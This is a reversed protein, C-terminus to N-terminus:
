FVSKEHLITMIYKELCEQGNRLEEPSYSKWITTNFSSMMKSLLSYYVVSTEEDNMDKHYNKLFTECFRNFIFDPFKLPIFFLFM